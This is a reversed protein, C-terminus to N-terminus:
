SIKQGPQGPAMTKGTEAEQTAQSLLHMGSCGAIPQSSIDHVIKGSQDQVV